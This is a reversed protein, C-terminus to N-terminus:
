RVLAEIRQRDGPHTTVAAAVLLKGSSDKSALPFTRKGRLDKRCILGVLNDKEDVIPLRSIKEKKIIEYAEELSVGRNAVKIEDRKRMIEEIPTSLDDVFALDSNSVMGLLKSSMKGDITVPFGSFHWQSKTEIIKSIPEWPGMVIPNLIFGNNYRKVKEVESAQKEISLNCHIVGIGGQLALEIAMESETVTDM